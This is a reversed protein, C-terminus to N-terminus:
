TNTYVYWGVNVPVRYFAGDKTGVEKDVYRTTITLGGFSIDTNAEFSSILNNILTSSVGRGEETAFNCELRFVGQYYTQFSSGRSAPERVTPIFTAEVYDTGPTPEYSSNQFAVDPIGTVALLHTELAAEINDYSM